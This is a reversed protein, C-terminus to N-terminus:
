QNGRERGYVIGLKEMKHRLTSPHIRLIEAAGGAGNVKGQTSELVREIQRAVVEDLSLSSDDGGAKQEGEGSDLAALCPFACAADGKIQEPSRSTLRSSSFPDLPLTRGRNQILAREVVNELERVNGPWDYNTLPEYASEAVPPPTRMGMERAKCTMFHHVLTMIDERRHRLPPIEVPFINLRFWLDQRFKNELVMKELNRHTAAIVRIDVPISGTGGVREIEKTQLVRLLRVQVAAPLEGSEDLLITGGHAREFRGLKRTAAGTFAGKEHGFLESDILNEPIAGCNIKILPGNRRPSSYHIANAIVEKGVGTEGLLLVTNNLPAIQDVLEMVHKLGGDAGVVSIDTTRRLENSLFRNDDVLREKIRSLQNYTLANSVAIGFPANLRELLDAHEETFICGEEAVVVVSGLYKEGINLHMVMISRGQYGLFPAVVSGLPSEEATLYLLVGKRNLSAYRELCEQVGPNSSPTFVNKQCIGKETGQTYTWVEKNKDQYLNLHLHDLPMITALYEHSKELAQCFDLSSCILLSADRFFENKDIKRDTKM